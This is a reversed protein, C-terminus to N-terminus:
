RGLMALGNAETPDMVEVFLRGKKMLYAARAASLRTKMVLVQGQNAGAKLEIPLTQKSVTKMEPEMRSGPDAAGMEVVAVKVSTKIEGSGPNFSRLSVTVSKNAKAEIKAVFRAGGITTSGEEPIPAAEATKDLPDDSIADLPSLLLPAAFLMVRARGTM